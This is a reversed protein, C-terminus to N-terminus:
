LFVEINNDNNILVRFIGIRNAHIPSVEGALRSFSVTLKFVQREDGGAFLKLGRSINGVSLLIARDIL